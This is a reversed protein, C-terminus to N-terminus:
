KKTTAFIFWCVGCANVHVRKQRRKKKKTMKCPAHPDHQDKEVVPERSDDNPM